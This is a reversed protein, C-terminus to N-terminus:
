IGNPLTTDRDGLSTMEENKKNQMRKKVNFKGCQRVKRKRKRM